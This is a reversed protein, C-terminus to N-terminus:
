IKGEEWGSNCKFISEPVTTDRPQLLHPFARSKTTNSTAVKECFGRYRLLDLGENPRGGYLCCLAKEGAAVIEELSSQRIFVYAAEKFASDSRLKRLTAGKGVAYLRSTTDYGSVAYVFPLLLCLEPGMVSKLRHIHWVKHNKKATQKKESKFFLPQSKVDAHLCLLALLDTDEGVGTTASNAASDVATQVILLDADSETHFIEVGHEQLKSSLMDIFRQKNEYNSLFHEKKTKLPVTSGVFNVKPGVLGKTRRLHATDKTGPGANYGDFM